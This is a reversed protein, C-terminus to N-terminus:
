WKGAPYKAGTSDLALKGDEVQRGKPVATVSFRPPPGAEIEVTMDYFRQVNEPAHVRLYKGIEEYGDAAVYSRRDLFMQQERQAIEMMFAQAAARHGKVIQNQYAPYAIAALIGIITVVIMAEILTFGGSNARTRTM